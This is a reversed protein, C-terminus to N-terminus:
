LSNWRQRQKKKEEGQIIPQKMHYINRQNRTERQRIQTRHFSQTTNRTDTFFIRLHHILKTKKTRNKILPSNTKFILTKLLKFYVKKKKKPWSNQSSNFGLLWSSQNYIFILQKIPQLLVKTSTFLRKNWQVTNTIKLHANMTQNYKCSIPPITIILNHTFFDHFPQSLCSSQTANWM